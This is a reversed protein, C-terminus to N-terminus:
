LIQYKFVKMHLNYKLRLSAIEKMMESKHHKDLSEEDHWRDILLVTENDDIPYFYDYQLNGNENRIKNVIGKNIMENVFKKANNDKGSYYINVLISM